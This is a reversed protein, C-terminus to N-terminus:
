FSPEFLKIILAKRMELHDNPKFIFYHNGQFANPEETEKAKEWTKGVTVHSEWNGNVDVVIERM